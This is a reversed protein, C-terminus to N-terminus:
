KGFITLVQQDDSKKWNVLSALDSWNGLFRMEFYDVYYELLTLKWGKWVSITKNLSINCVRFIYFASGVNEHKELHFM